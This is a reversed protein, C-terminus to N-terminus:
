GRNEKKRGHKEKKVFQFGNEDTNLLVDPLPQSGEEVLLDTMTKPLYKIDVEVINGTMKNFYRKIM